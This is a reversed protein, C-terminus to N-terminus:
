QDGLPAPQTFVVAGPSLQPCVAVSVSCRGDNVAAAIDEDFPCGMTIRTMAVGAQVLHGVGLPEEGM